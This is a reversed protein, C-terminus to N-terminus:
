RVFLEIVELPTDEENIDSNGCVRLEIDETTTESLTKNFWPMNPHTCCPAEEGPCQQGDWLPDNSYLASFDCCTNDNDGTECYYDSGVFPPPVLGSGNNCPCTLRLGHHHVLNVGNAYTWIHKRSPSGYTISVGDVYGSDITKPTNMISLYYPHFADPTGRQYGRLQGCVQSYNLGLTSFVTSQCGSGNRGCLTLGSLTTQTLGQPCTAGSQSMNVYAVRTWGGEGGCNTGEMDCYVQLTSSGLSPAHIQYNGSAASSSCSLIDQCSRIRSPASNTSEMDCCVHEPSANPPHIEYKGSPASPFCYLIEQCSRNRPPNCGPPGIEQHIKSLAEMLQEDQLPDGQGCETTGQANYIVPTFGSVVHYDGALWCVILSYIFKTAMGEKQIRNKHETLATNVAVGTKRKTPIKSATADQM